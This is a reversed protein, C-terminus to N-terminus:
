KPLRGVVRPFEDAHVRQMPRGKFYGFDNELKQAEQRWDSNSTNVQVYILDTASGIAPDFENFGVGIVVDSADDLKHRAILCRAYLEHLRRERVENKAFYAFVYLRQSPSQIIRSRTKGAMADRLFDVFAKSLVRRCFRDERAMGRVVFERDTLNLGFEPHDHGQNGTLIEILDDWKYSEADEIKRAKFEPKSRIENWIGSEIMLFDAKEPFARGAHIYVGLLDSETGNILIAGRNALFAEKATLYHVFDTITDLETLIEVLTGETFVHVHGKGFDGSHISCEGGSGFAIAIRHIRRTETPPLPIGTTGDTHIVHSASQLWKAAGYLQKLSDDVAKRLWREQHVHDDPDELTVEKVSFVVIDPDCVVLVDCLEKNKKGLPNNFCWLSLFSKTCLNHTFQESATLPASM